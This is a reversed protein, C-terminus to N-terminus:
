GSRGLSRLPPSLRIVGLAARSAELWQVGARSTELRMLYLVGKRTASLDERAEILEERWGNWARNLHAKKFMKAGRLTVLEMRTLNTAIASWGRFGAALGARHLTKLAWSLKATRAEVERADALWSKFSSNLQFSLVNKLSEKAREQNLMKWQIQDRWHTMGMKLKQHKMMVYAKRMQELYLKDGTRALNVWHLWCQAKAANVWMTLARRGVREMCEFWIATEKWTNYAAIFSRQRMMNVVRIMQDNRVEEAVCLERWHRLASGMGM